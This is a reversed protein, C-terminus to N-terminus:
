KFELKGKLLHNLLGICRGIFIVSALTGLGIGIIKGGFVLGLTIALAVSTADVINKTFAFSKHISISVEKTFGDPSCPVLNMKLILVVGLATSLIAAILLLSRIIHNDTSIRIAHNFMDTFIGFLLSIPLQLLVRKEFRKWIIFIQAVVYLCFVTATLYGLSFSTLQSLTYPVAGIPSVGYNTKTNLVVGLSLLSLGFLYIMVRKVQRIM